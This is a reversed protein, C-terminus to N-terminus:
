ARRRLFVVPFLVSAILFLNLLAGQSRNSTGAITCGGGSVFDVVEDVIEEEPM